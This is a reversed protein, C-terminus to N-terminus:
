IEILYKEFCTEKDDIEEVAGCREEKIEVKCYGSLNEGGCTYEYDIFLYPQFLMKESINIGQNKLSEETKEPFKKYDERILLVSGDLEKWYTIESEYVANALCCDISTKENQGKICYHVVIRGSEISIDNNNNLLYVEQYKKEGRMVMNGISVEIQPQRKKKEEEQNAEEKNLEDRYKKVEFRYMCIEIVTNGLFGIIGVAIGMIIMVKKIKAIKKSGKGNKDKEGM